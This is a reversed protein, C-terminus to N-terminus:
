SAAMRGKCAPNEDGGSSNLLAFLIPLIVHPANLVLSFGSSEKGESKRQTPSAEELSPCSTILNKGLNKGFDKAPRPEVNSPSTDLSARADAEVTICKKSLNPEAESLAGNAIAGRITESGGAGHLRRVM